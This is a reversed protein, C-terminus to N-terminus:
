LVPHYSLVVVGTDLTTTEILELHTAEGERFLLDSPGGTAALVPHVWLHLEDLLQHQLLTRVVPGVGNMLINGGPQEKLATVEEVLDGKLVTSGHWDAEDLTTSVVYKQIKNIQDAYAGTQAPWATAYIDYTKRGLLMADCELIQHTAFATASEDHYDFHWQELHETVGDLSIFSSNIIKRM